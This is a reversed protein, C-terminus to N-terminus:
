VCVCLFGVGLYVGSPLVPVHAYSSTYLMLVAFFGSCDLHGKVPSHM